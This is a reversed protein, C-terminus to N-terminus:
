SGGPKQKCSESRFLSLLYMTYLGSAFYTFYRRIITSQITLTKQTIPPWGQGTTHPPLLTGGASNSWGCPRATRARSRGTKVNKAAVEVPYEASEVHLLVPQLQHGHATGEDGTRLESPMM